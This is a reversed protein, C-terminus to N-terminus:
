VTVWQLLNYKQRKALTVIRAETTKYFRFKYKESDNIEARAEGCNARGRIAGMEGHDTTTM